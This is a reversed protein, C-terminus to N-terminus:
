FRGQQYKEFFENMVEVGRIHIALARQVGDPTDPIHFPGMTCLHMAENFCSRLLLNQDVHKSESEIIKSKIFDSLNDFVSWIWLPIGRTRAILDAGSGGKFPVTVSDKRQLEASTFGRSYDVHELEVRLYDTHLFDYYGHASHLLKGFDYAIDGVGPKYAARFFGRPDILMFRTRKPLRDDVLINQFHLDGHIMCVYPPHLRKLFDRDTALDTIIQRPNLLTRTGITIQKAKLLALFADGAPKGKHNSLMEEMEGQRKQYKTFYTDEVFSMDIDTSVDERYHYDFLFQFLGNLVTEALQQASDQHNEGFILRRLSKMRYYPMEYKIRGNEVWEHTLLKPYHISISPKSQIYELFRFQDQIIGNSGTKTISGDELPSNLIRKMPRYEETLTKIKNIVIQWEQDDTWTDMETRSLLGITLRTKIIYSCAGLDICKIIEDSDEYRSFMVVPLYPRIAKTQPLIEEYPDVGKIDLLVIDTHSEIRLKSLGEGASISIDYVLDVDQVRMRRVLEDLYPRVEAPDDDIVLAYITIV